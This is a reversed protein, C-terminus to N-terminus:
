RREVTDGDILWARTLWGHILWWDVLLLDQVPRATLCNIPQNMTRALAVQVGILPIIIWNLPMSEMM